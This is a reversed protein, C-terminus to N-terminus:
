GAFYLTLGIGICVWTARRAAMGLFIGRAHSLAASRDPDLFTDVADCVIPDASKADAMLASSAGVVLNGPVLDRIVRNSTLGDTGIITLAPAVPQRTVPWDRSDSILTNQITVEIDRVLAPGADSARVTREPSAARQSQTITPLVAPLIDDIFDYRQQRSSQVM